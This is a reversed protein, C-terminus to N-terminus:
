QLLGDMASGLAYAEAPRLAQLWREVPADGRADVYFELRFPRPPM